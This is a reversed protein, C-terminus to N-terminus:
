TKRMNSSLCNVRQPLAVAVWHKEPGSDHVRGEGQMLLLTPPLRLPSSVLIATYQDTNSQPWTPRKVYKYIIHRCFM